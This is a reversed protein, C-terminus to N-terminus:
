LFCVFAIIEKLSEPRNTCQTYHVFAFRESSVIDSTVIRLLLRIKAAWFRRHVKENVYLLVTSYKVVKRVEFQLIEFIRRLRILYTCPVIICHNNRDEHKLEPVLDELVYRLRLVESKIDHLPESCSLRAVEGCLSGFTQAANAELLKLLKTAM